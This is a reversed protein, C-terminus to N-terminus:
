FAGARSSSRVGSRVGSFAFARREVDSGLAAALEVTCRSRFRAPSARTVRNQRRRALCAAVSCFAASRGVAARSAISRCADGHSTRRPRRQPNRNPYGMREPHGWAIGGAVLEGGASGYQELLGRAAVIVPYGMSDPVGWPRVRRSRCARLNAGDGHGVRELRLPARTPLAMREPHHWAIPAGHATRVKAARQGHPRRDGTAAATTTAPNSRAVRPYATPIGHFRPYGM